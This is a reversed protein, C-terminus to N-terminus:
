HSRAHHPAQVLYRFDDALTAAHWGPVRLPWLLPLLKPYPQARHRFMAVQLCCSLALNTLYMAEANRECASMHQICADQLQHRCGSMGMEQHPCALRPWKSCQAHQGYDNRAQAPSSASAVAQLPGALDPSNNTLQCCALVVGLTASTLAQLPVARRVTVPARAVGGLSKAFRRPQQVQQM